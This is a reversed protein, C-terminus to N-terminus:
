RDAAGAQRVLPVDQFVYGDIATGAPIVASTGTFFASSLGILPTALAVPTAGSKGKDEAAGDLRIRHGGVEVFLVRVELKGARGMLGKPVARSVEGVGRAGKPIVLLGEVRVDASVELDFRQGQHARKSSLPQLTKMPVRTGYRLVLEQAAPAPQAAAGPPAGALLAALLARWGSM